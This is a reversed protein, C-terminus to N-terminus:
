FQIDTVEMYRQSNSPIAYVKLSLRAREHTTDNVVRHQLIRSPLSRGTLFTSINTYGLVMYMSLLNVFVTHM